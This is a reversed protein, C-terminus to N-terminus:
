AGPASGAPTRRSRTYAEAIVALVVLTALVTLGAPTKMWEWTDRLAEMPPQVLSLLFALVSDIM